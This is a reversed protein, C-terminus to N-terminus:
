MTGTRRPPCFVRSLPWAIQRVQLRELPSRSPGLIGGSFCVIDFTTDQHTVGPPLDGAM